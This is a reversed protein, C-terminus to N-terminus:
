RQRQIYSQLDEDPYAPVPCLGHLKLTETQTCWGAMAELVQLPPSPLSPSSLPPPFSLFPFPLPPSHLSPSPLPSPLSPSPLPSSPFSLYSLPPLLVWPSSVQPVLLSNLAAGVQAPLMVDKVEVQKWLSSHRSVRRWQRSVGSVMLLELTSLYQLVLFLAVEGPPPALEALPPTLKDGEKAAVGDVVSETSPTFVQDGHCGLTSPTLDGARSVRCVCLSTQTFQSVSPCVSQCAHM